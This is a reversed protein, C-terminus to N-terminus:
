HRGLKKATANVIVLCTTDSETHSPNFTALLRAEGSLLRIKTRIQAQDVLVRQIPLEKGSIPALVVSDTIEAGGFTRSLAVDIQLGGGHKELRALADLRSGLFVTEEMAIDKRDKVSYGSVFKIERGSSTILREGDSAAVRIQDVLDAEGAGAMERLRDGLAAGTDVLGPALLKPVAYIEVGLEIVTPVQDWISDVFIQVLELNAGTNRVRLLSLEGDLTASAGEPFAVGVALCIERPDFRIFRDGIVGGSGGGFPDEEAPPEPANALNIFNRPVEFDRTIMRDTAELSVAAVSEDQFYVSVIEMCSEIEVGPPAIAVVCGGLGACFELAEDLPVNQLSLTIPAREGGAAGSSGFGDVLMHRRVRMELDRRQGAEKDTDFEAAAGNLFEVVEELSADEFELKPIIISRMQQRIQQRIQKREGDSIEQAVACGLLALTAAALAM